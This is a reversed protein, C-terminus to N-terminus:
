VTKTLVGATKLNQKLEKLPIDRIGTKNRAAMAAAMGAAQGFAAVIPQTRLAGLAFHTCSLSKGAVLLGETERPILARYPIGYLPMRIQEPTLRTGNNDIGGSTLAITDEPLKGSKLDNVTIIHEGILRRCERM